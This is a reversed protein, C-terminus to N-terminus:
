KVFGEERKAQKQSVEVLAKEAKIDRAEAAKVAKDVSANVADAEKLAKYTTKLKAELSTVRALANALSVVSLTIVCFNLDFTVICTYLILDISVFIPVRPNM